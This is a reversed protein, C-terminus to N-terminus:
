LSSSSPPPSRSSCVRSRQLHCPPRSHRQLHTLSLASVHPYALHCCPTGNPSRGINATPSTPCPQTDSRKSRISRSANCSPPQPHGITLSISSRGKIHPHALAATRHIRQQPPRPSPLRCAVPLFAPKPLPGATAIPPLTHHTSDTSHVLRTNKSQTDSSSVSTPTSNEVLLLLTHTCPSHSSLSLPLRPIAAVPPINCFVSGGGRGRWGGVGGLCSTM